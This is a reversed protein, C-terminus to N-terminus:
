SSQRQGIPQNAPWHYSEVESPFDGRRVDAIFREAALSIEGALDAYCRAFKPRHGLNLGVLDHFVLVQGDCEPGAGIGITPIRLQHTIAAALERPISELVLAFAGAAELARADELLREAAEATRGQVRFGGLRHFSQPTLGLHGMVPIEAEVLRSVLEARETGGELKVAAAGGRQVLRLANRVGQAVSVHYSGYPLDAVVLARQAARAVAQTHHLMQAMTVPLTTAYGLVTMGLSDGVLLIDVGAADLLRATPFDYATLCVLRPEALSAPSAKRALLAPVTVRGDGAQPEASM